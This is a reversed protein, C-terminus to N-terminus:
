INYISYYRESYLASPFYIGAFYKQVVISKRHNERFETIKSFVILLVSEVCTEILLVVKSYINYCWYYHRGAFM